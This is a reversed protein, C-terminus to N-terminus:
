DTLKILFYLELYNSHKIKCITEFINFIDISIFINEIYASGVNITPVNRLISNIILM